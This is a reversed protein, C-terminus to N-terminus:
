VNLEQMLFHQYKLKLQLYKENQEQSAKERVLRILGSFMANIDTDKIKCPMSFIRVSEIAAAPKLKLKINQKLIPRDVNTLYM